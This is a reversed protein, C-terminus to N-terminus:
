RGAAAAARAAQSRAATNLLSLERTGVQREVRREVIRGRADREREIVTWQSRPLGAAEASMSGEHYRQLRNYWALIDADSEIRKVRVGSGPGAASGPPARLDGQVHRLTLPVVPDASEVIGFPAAAFKAIPPADATAVELPFSAANALARGSVDRLNGPMELRLRANIPLPVPFRVDSVEAAKDDPEFQPTSPRAM